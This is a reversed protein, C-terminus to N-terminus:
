EFVVWDFIEGTEWCFVSISNFTRGDFASDPITLTLSRGEFNDGTIDRLVVAVDDSFDRDLGLRIDVGPAAGVVSVFDSIKIQNVATVEVLGEIGAIDESATLDATSGIPILEYYEVTAEPTPTASPETPEHTATPPEPTETAPEGTETPPVATATPPNTTATPPAVDEETAEPPSTAEAQSVPTASDGPSCATVILALLPIAVLWGRRGRLPILM